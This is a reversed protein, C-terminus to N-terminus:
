RGAEPVQEAPPRPAGEARGGGGAPGGQAQRELGKPVAATGQGPRPWAAGRRCCRHDSLTPRPGRLADLAVELLGGGGGGLHRDKEAEGGKGKLFSNGSGPVFARRRGRGGAGFDM